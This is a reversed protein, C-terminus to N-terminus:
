SEYYSKYADAWGQSEEGLPPKSEGRPSLDEREAQGAKAAEEAAKKEAAKKAAEAEAQATLQAQYPKLAVSYFKVVDVPAKIIVGTKPDKVLTATYAELLQDAVEPFAALVDGMKEQIYDTGEKLTLNTDAVEYAYNEMQEIDQNLKQQAGLLWQAAEEDTFYDNTKPNILKTLDEIGTIPDGDADRLQRDIGEPYLTELVENKLQSRTDSATQKEQDLERLAAKIEERTAPKEEPEDDAPAEDAPKEGDDEAADDADGPKGAEEDADDAGDAGEGADSDAPTDDGGDTPKDDEDEEVPDAVALDTEYTENIADAWESDM